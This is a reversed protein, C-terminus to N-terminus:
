KPRKRRKLKPPAYSAAEMKWLGGEFSGEFRHLVLIVEEKVGTPTEWTLKFPKNPQVIPLIM